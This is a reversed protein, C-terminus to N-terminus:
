HLLFMVSNSKQINAMAHSIFGFATRCTGLQISIRLSCRSIPSFNDVRIQIGMSFSVLDGQASLSADTTVDNTSSGGFNVATRKNSGKPRM